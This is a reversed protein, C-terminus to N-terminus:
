LALFTSATFCSLEICITNYNLHPEDRITLTDVRLSALLRKTESIFWLNSTNHHSKSKRLRTAAAGPVAKKRHVLRKAPRDEDRPRAARNLGEQLAKDEDAGSSGCNQFRSFRLFSRKRCAGTTFCALITEKVSILSLSVGAVSRHSLGELRLIVLLCSWSKSM